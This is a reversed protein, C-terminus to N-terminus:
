FLKIFVKIKMRMSNFILIYIYINFDYRICTAPTVHELFYLAWIFSQTGHAKRLWWAKWSSTSICFKFGPFLKPKTIWKKSSYWTKQLSSELVFNGTHTRSCLSHKMYITATKIFFSCIWFEAFHGAPLYPFNASTVSVEIFPGTSLIYTLAATQINRSIM